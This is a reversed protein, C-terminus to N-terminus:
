LMPDNYYMLNSFSNTVREVTFHNFMALSKSLVFKESIFEFDIRNDNELFAKEDFFQTATKTTVIFENMM